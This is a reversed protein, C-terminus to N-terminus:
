AHGCPTMAEAAGLEATPMPLKSMQMAAPQGVQREREKHPVLEDGGAARLRVVNMRLRPPHAHEDAVFDIHSADDLQKPHVILAGPRLFSPALPHTTSPHKTRCEAGLM